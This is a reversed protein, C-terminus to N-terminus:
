HKRPPTINQTVGLDAPTQANPTKTAKRGKRRFLIGGARSRHGEQQGAPDIVKPEDKLGQTVQEHGIHRLMAKEAMVLASKSNSVKPAKAHLLQMGPGETTKEAAKLNVELNSHATLYEEVRATRRETHRNESRAKFFNFSSPLLDTRGAKLRRENVTKDIIAGAVVPLTSVTVAVAAVSAALGIVVPAALIMGFTKLASLAKKTKRGKPKKKKKASSVYGGADPTGSQNLLSRPDDEAKQAKSKNIGSLNSQIEVYKPMHSEKARRKVAKILHEPMIGFMNKLGMSGPANYHAKIQEFNTLFDNAFIESFRKREKKNDMNPFQGYIAEYDFLARSYCQEIGKRDKGSKCSGSGIGEISDLLAQELGARELNRNRPSSKKRVKSFFKKIGGAALSFILSQHFYRESITPKISDYYQKLVRECKAKKHEDAKDSKVYNHAMQIIKPTGMPKDGVFWTNRSDSLTQFENLSRYSDTINRTGFKVAEGHVNLELPKDGMQALIHMVTQNITTQRNEIGTGFINLNHDIRTVLVQVLYPIDFTGDDRKWAAYKKDMFDNFPLAPEGNSLAREKYFVYEESLMTELAQKMNQIQLRIAEMRGQDFKEKKDVKLEFPCAVGHRLSTRHDVVKGEKDYRIQRVFAGNAIGPYYRITTPQQSMVLSLSDRFANLQDETRPMLPTKELEDISLKHISLVVSEKFCKELEYKFPCITSPLARIAKLYDANTPTNPPNGPLLNHVYLYSRIGNNIKDENIKFYEKQQRSLSAFIFNANKSWDGGAKIEEPSVGSIFSLFNSKSDLEDDSHLTNYRGLGISEIVIDKLKERELAPLQKIWEPQNDASSHLFIELYEIAQETTLKTFPVNQYVVRERSLPVIQSLPISETKGKMNQVVIKKNPDKYYEGLNNKFSLMVEDDNKFQQYCMQILHNRIRKLISREIGSISGSSMASSIHNIFHVLPIPEKGNKRVFDAYHKQLFSQINRVHRPPDQSQVQYMIAKFSTLRTIDNRENQSLNNGELAPFKKNLADIFAQQVTSTVADSLDLNIDDQWVPSTGPLKAVAELMELEDHLSSTKQSKAAKVIGSCSERFAKRFKFNADPDEQLAKLFKNYRKSPKNIVSGDDIKPEITSKIQTQLAELAIDLVRLRVNYLVQFGPSHFIRNILQGIDEENEQGIFSKIYAKLKKDKNLLKDKSLQKLLASKVDNCVLTDIIKKPLSRLGIVVAHRNFDHQDEPSLLDSLTSAKTSSSGAKTDTGSLKIGQLFAQFREAQVDVEEKIPHTSKYASRCSARLLEKVHKRDIDYLIKIGTMFEKLNEDSISSDTISVICSMVGSVTRSYKTDRSLLALKELLTNNLQTAQNENSSALAIKLKTSIKAIENIAITELEGEPKPLISLLDVAIYHLMLDRREKAISGIFGNFAKNLDTYEKVGKFSPLTDVTRTHKLGPIGKQWLAINAFHNLVHAAEKVHTKDMDGSYVVVRKGSQLSCAVAVSKHILKKFLEKPKAPKSSFGDKNKKYSDYDNQAKNFDTKDILYRFDEIEHRMKELHSFEANKQRHYESLADDGALKVKQEASESYTSLAKQYKQRYLEVLGEYYNYLRDKYFRNFSGQVSTHSVENHSALLDLDADGVELLPDHLIHVADDELGINRFIDVLTTEHSSPAAQRQVTELYEQYLSLKTNDFPGVEGYTSNVTPALDNPLWLANKVKQDYVDYKDKNEPNSREKIAELAAVKRDNVEYRFSDLFRLLMEDHYKKYQKGEKKPNFSVKPENDLLNIKFDKVLEHKQHDSLDSPLTHWASKLINLSYVTLPKGGFYDNLTKDTIDGRESFQYSGLLVKPLSDYQFYKDMNLPDSLNMENYDIGQVKLYAENYLDDCYKEIKKAYDDGSRAEEAIVGFHKEQAEAGFVRFTTGTLDVRHVGLHPASRERELKGNLWTSYLRTQRNLGKNKESVQRYMEALKANGLESEGERMDLYKRASKLKTSIEDAELFCQIQAGYTRVIKRACELAEEKQKETLGTNEYFKLIEQYTQRTLVKYVLLKKGEPTSPNLQTETLQLGRITEPDLLDGLDKVCMGNGAKHLIFSIIGETKDAIRFANSSDITSPMGRSMESSLVKVAIEQQRKSANMTTIMESLSNQLVTYEREEINLALTRGSADQVGSSTSFETNGRTM